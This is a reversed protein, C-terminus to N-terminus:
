VNKVVGNENNWGDCGPLIRGDDTIITDAEDDAIFSALIQELYETPSDCGVKKAQREIAATTRADATWTIQIRVEEERLPDPLDTWNVEPEQPPVPVSKM